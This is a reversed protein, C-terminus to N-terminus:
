KFYKLESKGIMSDVLELRPIGEASSAVIGCRLYYEKGFKFDIMVFSRAATEAWVTKIGEQKILITKSFNNQVRCIVSDGLVLNYNKTFGPGGYRYVNLIAYNVGPKATAEEQVDSDGTSPISLINLTM